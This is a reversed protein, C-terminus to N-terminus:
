VDYEADAYGSGKWYALNTTLIGGRVFAAVARRLTPDTVMTSQAVAVQVMDSLYELAGFGFWAPWAAVAHMPSAILANTVNTLKMKASETDLTSPYDGEPM